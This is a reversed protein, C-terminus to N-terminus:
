LMPRLPGLTPQPEIATQPFLWRLTTRPSRTADPLVRSTARVTIDRPWIYLIVEDPIWFRQIRDMLQQVTPRIADLTLKPCVGLWHQFEVAALPADILQMCRFVRDIFHYVCRAQIDDAEDGVQVTVIGERVLGVTAFAEATTTPM